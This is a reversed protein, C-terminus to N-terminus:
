SPNLNQCRSLHTRERKSVFEKLFIKLKEGCNFENHQNHVADGSKIPLHNSFLCIQFVDISMTDLITGLPKGM